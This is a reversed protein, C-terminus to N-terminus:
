SLNAILWEGANEPDPVAILCGTYLYAVQGGMFIKALPALETGSPFRWTGDEFIKPLESEAFVPDSWKIKIGFAAHYGEEAREKFTQAIKFAKTAEEDKSESYSDALGGTLAMSAIIDVRSLIEEQSADKIYIGQPDLLMFAGTPCGFLMSSFPDVDEPLDQLNRQLEESAADRGSKNKKYDSMKHVSM